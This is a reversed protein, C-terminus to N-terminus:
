FEQFECNPEKRYGQHGRGLPSLHARGPIDSVFNLIALSLFFSGGGRTRLCSHSELLKLFQHDGAALFCMGEVQEWGFEILLIYCVADGVCQVHTQALEPLQHHVPFDPTSCDMPDCLTLCSQALASFQFCAVCIKM